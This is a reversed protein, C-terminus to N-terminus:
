QPRAGRMRAVLGQDAPGIKHVVIVGNPHKERLARRAHGPGKAVEYSLSDVHIAVNDGNHLPELRQQLESRYFALAKTVDDDALATTDALLTGEPAAKAKEDALEAVLFQIAKLKEDYDLGGLVPLLDALPM